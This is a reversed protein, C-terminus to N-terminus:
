RPPRKAGYGGSDFLASKAQRDQAQSQILAKISSASDEIELEAKDRYMRMAVVKEEELQRQLHDYELVLEDYRQKEKQIANKAKRLKDKLAKQERQQEEMQRQHGEVVEQMRRNNIAVLKNANEAMQERWQAEAQVAKARLGEIERCQDENRKKERELLTQTWRLTERGKELAAMKETVSASLRAAAEALRERERKAEEYDGSLIKEAEALEQQTVELDLRLATTEDLHARQARQAAAAADELRIRLGALETALSENTRNM